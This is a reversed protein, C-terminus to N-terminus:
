TFAYDPVYKSQGHSLTNLCSRSVNLQVISPEQLSLDHQSWHQFHLQLVISQQLHMIQCKDRSVFVDRSSFWKIVSDFNSSFLVHIFSDLYLIVTTTVVGNYMHVCSTTDREQRLSGSRDSTVPLWKIINALRFANTINQLSMHETIVYTTIFLLKKSCSFQNNNIKQDYTSCGLVLLLLNM